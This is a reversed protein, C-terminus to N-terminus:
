GDRLALLVCLEWYHRFAVHDSAAAAHGLYDRWRAPVFEDPAGDPVKRAGSVNLERLVLVADLLPRAATGGDFHVAALVAPTLTFYRVLEERRIEPFAQLKDMEADSM